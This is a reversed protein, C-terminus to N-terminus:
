GQKSIVGVAIYLSGSNFWQVALGPFMSKMEAIIDKRQDWCALRRYLPVILANLPRLFGQFLHGDCIVVRGGQRRRDGSSLPSTTESDFPFLPSLFPALIPSIFM